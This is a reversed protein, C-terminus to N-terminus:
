ELFTTFEGVPLRDPKYSNEPADTTYGLVISYALGLTDPIDLARKIIGGYEATSAQICSGIGFQRAALCVTQMFGGLDIMSGVSLRKDYCVFLVTPAGFWRFNKEWQAARREKDDRGIGLIDYLGLGTQHRRQKYPAFWTTPYYIYDPEFGGGAHMHALVAETVKRLSAGSAAYVLWPQMNAGSPAEGALSLIEELTERRIPTAHFDRQSSRGRIAEAITM